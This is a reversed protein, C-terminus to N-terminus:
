ETMPKLMLSRLETHRSSNNLSSIEYPRVKSGSLQINYDGPTEIYVSGLKSDARYYMKGIDPTDLVIENGKISEAKIRKDMFNIYVPGDYQLNMTDRTYSSLWLEYRGKNKIRFSWEATNMDPHLSDQLLYAKQLDLIITGDAQETIFTETQTDATEEVRNGCSGAILALGLLLVSFIRIRRM